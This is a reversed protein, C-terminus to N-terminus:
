LSDDLDVGLSREGARVFGCRSGGRDGLCRDGGRPGAADLAGGVPGLAVRLKEAGELDGGAFGGLPGADIDACLRGSLELLKAGGAPGRPYTGGERPEECGLPPRPPEKASRRCSAPEEQPPAGGVGVAGLAEGVIGGTEGAELPIGVPGRAPEECPGEDSQNLLLQDAAVGRAAAVADAEKALGCCGLTWGASAL